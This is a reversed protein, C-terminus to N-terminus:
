KCIRRWVVGGMLLPVHKRLTSVNVSELGRRQEEPYKYAEAHAMQVVDELSLRPNIGKKLICWKSAWLHRNVFPRGPQRSGPEGSATL